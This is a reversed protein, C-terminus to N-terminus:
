QLPIQLRVTYRDATEHIDLHHREGYILDLRQCANKLGVGGNSRDGDTITSATSQPPKSNECIFTLQGDAAKVHIEVFSDQRYTVGHKFANEVFTAFLLPPVLAEPLTSPLHLDIRVSDTYRLRMLAIFHQMFAVERTLPVQSKDGEYLVFRMMRSLEVISSKALEPDIDVLAHINNLTNMFFHPNIQYRLYALQQQLTKREMEDLRRADARQRFYLKVGLNMGFVLLLVIVAIFDHRGLLFPPRAGRDEPRRGHQHHGNHAEPPYFAEDPEQHHPGKTLAPHHQDGRPPLPPRQSCQYLTFVAVIALVTMAYLWRRGKQILLPAVLRDHLLFLLGFPLLVRWTHLVDGWEVNLDPQTYAQVAEVVVPAAALLAWIVIYVTTEISLLHRKM